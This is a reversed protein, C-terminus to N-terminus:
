HGMEQGQIIGDRGQFLDLVSPQVIELVVKTQRGRQPGKEKVKGTSWVECSCMAIRTSM